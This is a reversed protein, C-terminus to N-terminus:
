IWACLRFNNFLLLMSFNESSAFKLFLNKGTLMNNKRTRQLKKVRAFNQEEILKMFDIETQKLKRSPDFNKITKNLDNGSM